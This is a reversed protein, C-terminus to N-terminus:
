SSTVEKWIENVIRDFVPQIAPNIYNRGAVFGGTGTSYGHNIMIAVPFGNEVDFNKWTLSFGNSNTEVEYSWSNAALGSDVPTAARLASLGQDGYRSLRTKLDLRTMRDLFAQTRKFDGSSTWSISM